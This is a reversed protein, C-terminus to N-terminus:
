RQEILTQAIPSQVYLKKGNIEAWFFYYGKEVEATVKSVAHYYKPQAGTNMVFVNFDDAGRSIFMEREIRNVNDGKVFFNMAIMFGVVVVLGVTGIIGLIGVKKM